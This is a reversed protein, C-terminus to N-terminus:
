LTIDNQHVPKIACTQKACFSVQIEDESLFRKCRECKTNWVNLSCYIGLFFSLKIDTIYESYQFTSQSLYRRAVKFFLHTYKIPIWSLIQKAIGSWNFKWLKRTKKRYSSNLSKNIPVKFFPNSVSKFVHLLRWILRVVLPCMWVVDHSCIWSALWVFVKVPLCMQIICLKLINDRTKCIDINVLIM